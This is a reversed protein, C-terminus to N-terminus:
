DHLVMFSLKGSGRIAMIRGALRVKVSETGGAELHEFAAQFDPTRHTQDYTTPYPDAGQSILAQLNSRRNSEQESIPESM